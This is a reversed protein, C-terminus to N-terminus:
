LVEELNMGLKEILGELIENSHFNIVLKGKQNHFELNVTCGLYASLAHELKTLNPDKTQSKLSHNQLNKIEIELKRVNWQHQITKNALEFQLQESLSALAKGHGESLIGDIIWNQVQPILKLLRLSNTISVRSKGVIAALEDHSYYFQDILAQYTQAVEIPNLDKRNLNEVAAAAGAQQENYPRVLCLVMNLGALQAARWRREGAIIEYEGISSNPRVVIPQILGNTKISQALEKLEAEDFRRRTQYRGQKLQEIPLSKLEARVNM